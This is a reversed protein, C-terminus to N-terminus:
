HSAGALEVQTHSFRDPLTRKQKDVFRWLYGTGLLLGSGLAFFFRALYQWFRLESQMSTLKLRWASMGVTQGRRRWSIYYYAFWVTLLLLQYLPQQPRITQFHNLPVLITTILAWISIIIIADYLMAAFQRWLPATKVSIPM